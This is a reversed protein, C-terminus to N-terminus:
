GSLIRLPTFEAKSGLDRKYGQKRCKFFGLFRCDCVTLTMSKDTQRIIERFVNLLSTAIESNSLQWFSRGIGVQGSLSLLSVVLTWM